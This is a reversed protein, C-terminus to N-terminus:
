SVEQYADLTDDAPCRYRDVYTAAYDRVLDVLPPSERRALADIAIAFLARASDGVARDAPGHRAAADWAHSPVARAAEAAAPDDLLASLVATPVPWWDLPLADVYRIEYWGRPRVPPFLTTLHYALDDTTPPETSGLLSRFTTGPPLSWDDHARRRLMLDADLAYDAWARVPDDGECPQTRRPDLSQWVRQRASKWGTDLGSHVPSNAFAASLAPGVQHLLAWRRAADALDHGIDLNVQTAATSTMMVPGSEAGIAAFHAEMATYRPHELQRRTRRRPDIATPLLTLGAAEIPKRVHAVDAALLRWNTSAGPAPASSLELQGGPEYTIRSGHPPPPLPDLVQRLRSLPVPEEPAATSAVLWELETGVLEPPGTKFCVSAVYGHVAESTRLVTASRQTTVSM